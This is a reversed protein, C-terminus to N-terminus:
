SVSKKAEELVTRRAGQAHERVAALEASLAAVDRSKAEAAAKLQDVTKQQKDLQDLLTSTTSAYEDSKEQLAQQLSQVEAKKTSYLSELAIFGRQM